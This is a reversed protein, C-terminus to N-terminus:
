IPPVPVPYPLPLKDGEVLALLPVATAVLDSVVIQGPVGITNLELPAV